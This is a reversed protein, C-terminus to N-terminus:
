DMHRWWASEVNVSKTAKCVGEGCANFPQCANMEQSFVGDCNRDDSGTVVNKSACSGGVEAVNGASWIAPGDTEASNGELCCDSMVMTAGPSNLIAGGVGAGQEVNDSSDFFPTAVNNLFRSSVVMMTGRNQLATGVNERFVSDIVHTLSGWKADVVSGESGDPSSNRDFSYPNPNSSSSNNHPFTLVCFLECWTAFYV